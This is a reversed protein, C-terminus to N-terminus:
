SQSIKLIMKYPNKFIIKFQLLSNIKKNKISIKKYLNLLDMKKYLKLNMMKKLKKNM